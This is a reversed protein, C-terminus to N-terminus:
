GQLKAGGEVGGEVNGIIQVNLCEEGVDGDDLGRCIAPAVHTDVWAVIDGGSAGARVRLLGGRYEVSDVKCM